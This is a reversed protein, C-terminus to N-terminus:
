LPSPYRRRTVIFHLHLRKCKAIHLFVLSKVNAVTNKTDSAWFADFEFM